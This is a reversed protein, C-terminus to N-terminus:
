HIVLKCRSAGCPHNGPSVLPTATLTARVLLHMLIRLHRFAILLPHEFAGRLQESAHLIPLHHKSTLQFSRLIPHYTVLLSINASKDQNLKLQLCAETSTELARKFENYLHQEYYGRLFFNHKLERTRQIYVRDDSCKLKRRPIALDCDLHYPCPFM